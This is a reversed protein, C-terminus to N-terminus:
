PRLVVRRGDDVIVVANPQIEQIRVGNPLVDGEVYKRGNIFALRRAGDDSYVIVELRLQGGVDARPTPAAAPPTVAPQPAPRVAAIAQPAAPQAREPVPEVSPQRAPVPVPAVPTVPVAAQRAEAIPKVPAAAKPATRVVAEVEAASPEPQVRATTAPAPAEHQARASTVRTSAEQRVRLGAPPASAEHQARAGTVAPSAEQQVRAGTLPAPEEHQVRVTTPKESVASGAPWLIWVAVAAGAVAASGAVVALRWRPADATEPAPSFLRRMAPAHADRQEAAKKLADLIYSM